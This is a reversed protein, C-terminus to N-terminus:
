PQPPRELRPAYVGSPTGFSRTRITVASFVLVVLVDTLIVFCLGVTATIDVGQCAHCMSGFAMGLPVGAILLAVLLLALAVRV